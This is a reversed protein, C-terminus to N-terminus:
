QLVPRVLAGLQAVARTAAGLPKLRKFIFWSFPRSVPVLTYQQEGKVRNLM